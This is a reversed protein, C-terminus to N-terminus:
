AIFYYWTISWLIYWVMIWFLSMPGLLILLISSGILLIWQHKMEKLAFKPVKLSILNIPFVLLISSLIALTRITKVSYLINSFVIANWRLLASHESIEPQENIMFILLSLIIMTNAPTPLGIFYYSQRTDHNFKALRIASFLVVAFCLYNWESHEQQEALHYLIMSPLLGFTVLDALSDLDKGILSSAKLYRAILGDLFDAILSIIVLIVVTQYQERWLSVIAISGCLLNILTITNPIWNIIRQM